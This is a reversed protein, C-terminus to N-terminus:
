DPLARNVQETDLKPQHQDTIFGPLRLRPMHGRLLTFVQPLPSEFSDGVLVFWAKGPAIPHLFFVFFSLFFIM